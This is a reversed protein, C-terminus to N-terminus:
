IELGNKVTLCQTCYSITDSQGIWLCYYVHSIFYNALPAPCRQARDDCMCEGICVCVCVCVCMCVCVSERVGMGAPVCTLLECRWCCSVSTIHQLRVASLLQKSICLWNSTLYVRQRVMRHILSKSSDTFKSWLYSEELPLRLSTCHLATWHLRM